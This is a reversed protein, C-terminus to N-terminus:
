GEIDLGPVQGKLGLVQTLFKVELGHSQGWPWPSMIYSTM